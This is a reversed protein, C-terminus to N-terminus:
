DYFNFEARLSHFGSNSPGTLNRTPWYHRYKPVCMPPKKRPASAYRIHVFVTEM